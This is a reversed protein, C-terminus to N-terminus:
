LVKDWKRSLKLPGVKIQIVLREKELWLAGTYLKKKKRSFFADEGKWKEGERELGTFVLLGIIPKNKWQGPCDKCIATEPNEEDFVEVLKGFLKGDQFYVEVVSSPKNTFPDNTKWKGSLSQSACPMVLILM